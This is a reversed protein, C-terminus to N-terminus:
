DPAPAGRLEFAAPSGVELLELDSTEDVFAHAIGAPVVLSSGAGLREDSRGDCRLTLAGSIVFLFRLEADHLWARPETAGSRRAAAATVLGNSAATVGLDRAEFGAVRWSRWAANEARHHVFRQGGYSREPRARPSPLVLEHDARTEHDAPSGVEVVELGASCELVRHRIEPPQLVADGAEFLFPPGQDEYVLRASGRLCYILQFSIRHFHVYDSVPGGEPIRIHSAVFRGGQGGPILDRYLMGARGAHWAGDASARTAVLEPVLRPPEVQPSAEVLEVRTGNPAVCERAGGALALPDRCSLRLRGPDARLARDLRVTLGHGSIVAVRPDDAPFVAEIRFGLRAFFALTADLEAGPLVVEAGRIRDADHVLEAL